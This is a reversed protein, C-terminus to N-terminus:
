VEKGVAESIHKFGDKKLLKALGHNIDGVLQPGEYILGTVLAVLSAGARIKEYADEASFVGGIGIIVLKDGYKQYTQRILHTSVDRTPAGSLNGKVTAPLDDKLQVKTRDKLLNSIALGTIKHKAVVETLADFEQDPLSVPMKIFVPKKLQLKDVSQLLKKLRDPTTFPEGGFTNPCSINIELMTVQALKDFVALSECYDAIALEDSACDKSNTKAVSVNLPFATFLKASYMSVRKAVVSTGESPLGANVVLAKSNPLRYFWPKPNGEYEGFTVSGGTMWGFGVSKMLAPLELAKDFGASLGVPNRFQMGAVETELMKDQYSWLKPLHKVGPIKQVRKGTRILGHHVNDAQHKFMIPKAVKQYGLRSIKRIIRKM